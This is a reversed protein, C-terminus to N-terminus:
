STWNLLSQILQWARCSGSASRIRTWAPRPGINQTSPDDLEVLALPLHESHIARQPEQGALQIVQELMNQTAESLDVQGPKRGARESAPTQKAVIQRVAELSAGQKRLINGAEGEDQILGLLLHGPSIKVHGLAVAEQHALSLVKRAAPNFPTLGAARKEAM